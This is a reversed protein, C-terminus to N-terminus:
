LVGQAKLTAIAAAQEPTLETKGESKPEPAPEAKVAGGRTVEVNFHKLTKGGPRKEEETFTVKIHDGAEPRQESLAARLKVQGATLAKEDGEDTEIILKPAVKGDDFRHVQVATVTGSVFDGVNEFKVYDNAVAIEPDDWVSTM